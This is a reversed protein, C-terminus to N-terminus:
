VVRNERPLQLLGEYLKKQERAIADWGYVREVTERAHSEIVAREVPDELLRTIAGAMAEASDTVLVDAGLELELGHIGAETSVIAKGMAMAELIKVNTGASAVLPAIVLAARRYAPRVDSVFGEVDVGPHQLDWFRQHRQGAIVHLTVNELQPFVDRLFFELALVNPRHAFSGIFLLRRPEPQQSSPQFRDLDVGNPIAVSGKVLSRDLESMTVVRDVQRWAATEFSTWLEYQRRTEWDNTGTALMQAYLDYTIDHEVLITRAPACGAAYQALQTFEFQVIAPRWKAITQRLAAHFAATDFEEVTDPRGRSPLAHSGARRVTVIETCIERLERPVPLAEETFAVLVQDFDAAARRMLNYIRVAAGHSLPFPVYPSAILVVPKAAAPRGPFVAVEGNVLDLFRIDGAPVSVASQRASVSLAAEKELAKLRLVNHRWLRSFTEPDGIARALFHVYNIELTRDLEDRSFYRSTTARHEHLVRAEACYVSPWGRLWARVGLDLDEVYAPRYIEDFGGLTELKVADYLTCGGSGYLVYSHDEGELPIDCHVPFEIVEPAPTMVTKGTEERRKGEPFFIQATSSFLDPVTDFPGLLAAFFGPEVAMDNNLVCVHSFRARRIGRNVATAFALPQPSLEILVQPWFRGLYEATGDDSGNDIIIIEDAHQIGSLCAELLERGNRSPIVVSVGRPRRSETVPVPEVIPRSRALSRGRAMAMRYLVSLRFTGPKRFWEVARYTSSEPQFQSRVLNKLRWLIHRLMTLTDRPRLMFHQGTENFALFHLPALAFGLARLRWHPIRPELIVAALRIRRGGLKAQILERNERWSRRIHYPIWEAELPPFESVVVLPLEPFIKRFRELALAVVADSASAFLVKVSQSPGSL